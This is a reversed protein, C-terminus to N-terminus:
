GVINVGCVLTFGSFTSVAAQFKKREDFIHSAFIVNIKYEWQIYLYPWFRGNFPPM